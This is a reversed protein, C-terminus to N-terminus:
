VHDARMKIGYFTGARVAVVRVRHHGTDAIVLNGSGDTTIGQVGSFKAHAIPGGDGGFGPEGSIRYVKGARMARGYFQGSRMALVAVAARAAVVNGHRDVTAPGTFDATASTLPYTQGARMRRGDFTGSQAALVFIWSDGSVVPNGA